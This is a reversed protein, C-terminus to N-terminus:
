KFFGNLDPNISFISNMIHESFRDVFIKKNKEYENALNIVQPDHVTRKKVEQKTVILSAAELKEKIFPKDFHSCVKAFENDLNTKLGEYTIITKKTTFTEELLWKSLHKAYLTTWHNIRDTDSTNEKYYNLQSYITDVPYRYLYIVNKRQIDLETDHRHYCTFDRSDKYYFLRVLSPKEFYLEMMMRLWHSGTRPFSILYPFDPNVTFKEIVDQYLQISSEGNNIINTNM